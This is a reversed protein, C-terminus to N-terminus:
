FGKFVHIFFLPFLNKQWVTKKDNIEQYLSSCNSCINYARYSLTDILGKKYTTPLHSNCNLYVSSFTKRRFLSGQLENGVRTILIDLFSIKNAQEEEVTFKINRHCTNMYKLFKKVHDKKDFM